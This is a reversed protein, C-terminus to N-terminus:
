HLSLKITPKITLKIALKITLQLNPAKEQSSQNTLIASNQKLEFTGLLEACAPSPPETALETPAAVWRAAQM